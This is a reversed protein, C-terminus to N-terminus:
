GSIKGARTHSPVGDLHSTRIDALLGEAAEEVLDLVHEFGHAGGYYPDPVERTSAHPAYDLFLCLKAKHEPPALKQLAVLNNSDMALIYDFNAFDDRTVKRARQRSLDIGRLAAAETARKDPLAGRHWGGTGASDVSIQGSLGERELLAEFVGQATPSRCINGLCVFLVRIM